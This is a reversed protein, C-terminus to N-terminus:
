AWSLDRIFRRRERSGQKNTVGTRRSGHQGRRCQEKEEHGAQRHGKCLVEEKSRRSNGQSRDHSGRLPLWSCTGAAQDGDCTLKTRRAHSNATSIDKGSTEASVVMRDHKSSIGAPNTIDAESTCIEILDTMSGNKGCIESFEAAPGM